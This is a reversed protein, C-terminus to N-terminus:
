KPEIVHVSGALSQVAVGAGYAQLAAEVPSGDLNFRAAFAGDERRLFHVVGKLDAVVVYPGIVKPATLNRYGLKDQKWVSSGTSRDFALVNGKDDTVYVRRSDVDLGSSSSVDRSWSLQGSNLDFCAVRGQYAVACIDRGSLVPSAVIDAVRDLETTGKPLAVTGDWAPVGNNLMLAVLKGGPFGVFVYRDVVLPSAESRLSLAPTDRQYLWKRKGDTLDLATIRYDGSRVIVMGPAFAAPALVESSVKSRWLQSGDTASLAIVEGKASGVVVTKGDSAVGGSLTTGTQIKWAAKGEDLRTVSGDTAAAYVSSGVVAPVFVYDGAKGVNAQWVSRVETTASIAQLEAAKVKSKSVFPNISDLTSCGGVLTVVGLAAAVVTLRRNM